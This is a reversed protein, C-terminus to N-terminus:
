RHPGGGRPRPVTGPRAFGGYLADAELLREVVMSDLVLFLWGVPHRPHRSALVTGAVSASAVTAFLPVAQADTDFLGPRSTRDIAAELVFVAVLLGLTAALIVAM